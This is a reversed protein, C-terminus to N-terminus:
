DKRNVIDNEIIRSTSDCYIVYQPIYFDSQSIAELKNNTFLLETTVIYECNAVAKPSKYLLISITDQNIIQINHSFPEGLKSLISVKDMGLNITEISIPISASNKYINCSTLGILNILIFHVLKMKNLKSIVMQMPLWKM